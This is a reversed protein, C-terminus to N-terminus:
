EKIKKLAARISTIEEMTVRAIEERSHTYYFSPRIPSFSAGGYYCWIDDMTRIMQRFKLTRRFEAIKEVIKKTM